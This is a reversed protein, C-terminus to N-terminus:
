LVGLFRLIILVSVISAIVNAFLFAFFQFFQIRARSKSSEAEEDDRDNSQKKLLIENSMGYGKLKSDFEILSGEVKRDINSISENLKPIVIEGLNELRSSMKDVKEEIADFKGTLAGLNQKMDLIIEIPFKMANENDEPM